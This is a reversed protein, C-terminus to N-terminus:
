LTLILPKDADLADKGAQVFNPGEGEMKGVEDIVIVDSNATAHRLAYVGGEELASIDVGYRGVMIKSEIERSAFVRKDKTAWDMVYFGERRSRKIIPETIMGGVKMGDAELM